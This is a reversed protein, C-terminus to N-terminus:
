KRGLEKDLLDSLYKEYDFSKVFKEINNLGRKISQEVSNPSVKSSYAINIISIGLFYHMYIFEKQNVRRSDKGLNLLAQMVVIKFEKSEITIAKPYWNLIKNYLEILSPQYGRDFYTEKNVAKM